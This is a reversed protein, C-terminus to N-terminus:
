EEYKHQEAVATKNIILSLNPIPTTEMFPLVQRKEIWEKWCITSTNTGINSLYGGKPIM